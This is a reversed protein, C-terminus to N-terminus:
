LTYKFFPNKEESESLENEAYREEMEVTSMQDKKKNMTWLSFELVLCALMGAAAFALSTGYGTPYRPKEDAIYIYSGIIGGANGACILYGIAVARKQPNPINCINWANVGPLIPYMGFCALCIGFYCLAINNQIDAAKTFLIAFAIILSIQPAVIFPMRWSCRDAFVSFGYASAAGIAYPPITLLQANAAQYGMSKIIEPMSFKLAYNPVANSWNALILLYIKWDTLVSLIIRKSFARDHGSHNNSALQRAELFRIEDSTLWGPSLSPSDLLLMYCAFAMCVTAIGEIIFIWRWGEYGVTGDMKAIAFALLGSFAGGSAASTYLIAIRTQTENPLYWKSIVLVAGPLFGARCPRLSHFFISLAINYKRIVKKKAEDTFNALFNADEASIGPCHQGEVHTVAADKEAMNIFMSWPPPSLYSTVAPSFDKINGDSSLCQSVSGFDPTIPSLYLLRALYVPTHPSLRSLGPNESKTMSSDLTQWDSFLFSDPMNLTIGDEVVPESDTGFIDPDQLMPFGHDANNSAEGSHVPPNTRLFRCREAESKLEDLIVTYRQNQSLGTSARKLHGHCKEALELIRGLSQDIMEDAPRAARQIEWVYVVALACFIVYHTWWFSHFLISDGAMRDILELSAKTAFICQSVTEPAAGSLLFPRYTHILAHFYALQLAIAQRRFSPILTTPKVSGLHPPLSERWEHLEHGLRHATALRNESSLESVSYVERSVKGIIRAIKAHYILADIHFDGPDDSISVGNPTMYEDNVTDPFNQDIDEDQYLRPRGLVVSLYRDITYAVWFTRKYCESTIYNQRRSTFPYDRKQDRRRHMGLSLTIHFAHGFTYWGKNMRSTQLLYLVQILRSQASELRPFGIEEETMRMGACFLQDSRELALSENEISTEGDVRHFRLNAIAMITFLIATRANGLPRAISGPGQRNKLFVEMWDEVTPQHFMRYTVVCTAFYFQQLKRATSADPIFTDSASDDAHFPRDGASTLLQRQETFIPNYSAAQDKQTLLKKWARHLFNLGSTPDFYQGEIEGAPSACSHALPTSVQALVAPQQWTSIDDSPDSRPRNQHERITASAPPTPPRGRSYKADYACSIRRRACNKCPLTGDCRIKKKKCTDCARSVKPDKRHNEDDVDKSTTSLPRKAPAAKPSELRLLSEQRPSSLTM